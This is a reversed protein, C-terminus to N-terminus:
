SERNDDSSVEWEDELFVDMQRLTKVYCAAGEDRVRERLGM